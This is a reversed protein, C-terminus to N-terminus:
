LKQRQKDIEELSKNVQLRLKETEQSQFTIHEMRRDLEKKSGECQERIARTQRQENRAKAKEIEFQRKALNLSEWEEMIQDRAQQLYTEIDNKFGNATFGM